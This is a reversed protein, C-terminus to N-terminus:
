LTPAPAPTAPVLPLVYEAKVVYQSDVLIRSGHPYLDGELNYQDMMQKCLGDFSAPSVQHCALDVHWTIFYPSCIENNHSPGTTSGPYMVSKEHGVVTWGHLMDAVDDAGNVIQFVQGQVVVMPNLLGRGNAAGGLGDDMGDIDAGVLQEASYGASSHVYHIEYSKGVQVDGKCYQFTYPALQVDTFGQTSCMFGPRPDSGLRRDSSLRRTAADYAVSDTDDSYEDSKHEAGLHYHVNVLPLSTSQEETLTAAKPSMLGQAGTTLDRPAQPEATNCAPKNFNYPCAGAAEAAGPVVTLEKGPSGCCNEMQYATKLDGCTMPGPGGATAIPLVIAFM